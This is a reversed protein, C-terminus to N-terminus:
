PLVARINASFTGGSSSGSYSEAARTGDGVASGPFSVTVTASGGGAALSGLSQPLPSGTKGGLSATTLQVNSATATGNNSVTVTATYGAGASGTLSATTVLEVTGGQVISLTGNVFSFLYNPDTLSGQTATIPYIGVPSSNTATTSLAPSGSLSAATDGNIFGTYSATLAPVAAGAPITASNATVTLVPTFSATYIASTTPATVSDTTATTGDQWQNFVYQTGAVTQPSVVSLQCPSSSTWILTVPTTYTGPACGAGTSTFALGSPSSTITASGAPLTPVFSVGKFNSDLPATALKTFSTNPNTTNSLTDTIGYLYTPDLDAITYNTVYLYVTGNSVTGALGYLGTTGSTDSPNAIPNQVLNLGGALTYQLKWNGSGDSKTNVWKQLGGDGLPSTASTQKPNGSDTVYLVSNSAFFYNMPGLNIQLGTSNIGNTESATLVLKGTSTVNM